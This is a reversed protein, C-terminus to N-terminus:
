LVAELKPKIHNDFYYGPLYRRCNELGALYIDYLNPNNAARRCKHIFNMASHGYSFPWGYAVVSNEENWPFARAVLTEPLVMVSTTSAECDRFTKVGAGPMAISLKASTQIRLVKDMDERAYWPTHVSLWANERKSNSSRSVWADAHDFQTVLEYSFMGTCNFMKAHLAARAEHSRGWFYMVEFTRNDFSEKSVPEQIPRHCLYDIPQLTPSVDRELLERKFQIAPPHTAVFDDFAKWEKGNERDFFGFEETNKGWIHTAHFDFDWGYETYCVLAWLKNIRAMGERDFQFHNFATIPVLIVDADNRDHVRDPLMRLIHAVPPDIYESVDPSQIFIKM